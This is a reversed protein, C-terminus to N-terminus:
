RAAVLVTWTTELKVSGKPVAQDQHNSNHSRQTLPHGKSNLFVYSSNSLSESLNFIYWKVEFHLPFHSKKNFELALTDLQSSHFTNEYCKCAISKCLAKNM